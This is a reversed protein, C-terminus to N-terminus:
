RQAQSMQYETTTKMRPHVRAWQSSRVKETMATTKQTIAAKVTM